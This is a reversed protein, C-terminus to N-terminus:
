FFDNITLKGDGTGYILLFKRNRLGGVLDLLNANQYPQISAIDDNNPIGFYKETYASDTDFFLCILDIM